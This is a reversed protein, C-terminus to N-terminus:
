KRFTSITEKKIITTDSYSKLKDFNIMAEWDNILAGDLIVGDFSDTFPSFHVDLANVGSMDKNYITQPNIHINTGSFDMYTVNVNTLDLNSLDLMRLVMNSRFFDDFEIYGKETPNGNNKFIIKDLNDIKIKDFKLDMKTENLLEAIERFKQYALMIRDIQIKRFEKLKEEKDKELNGISAIYLQNIEEKEEESFSSIDVKLSILIKAIDEETYKKDEQNNNGFTQIEETATVKKTYLRNNQDNKDRLIFIMNNLGMISIDLLFDSNNTQLKNYRNYSAYKSYIAHRYHKYQNIFYDIFEKTKKSKEFTLSKIDRGESRWTTYSYPQVVFLDNEIKGNDMFNIRYYSRDKQPIKFGIVYDFDANISGQQIYCDIEKKKVGFYSSIYNLFDDIKKIDELYKKKLYEELILYPILQNNSEINM